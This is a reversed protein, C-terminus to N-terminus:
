WRVMWPGWRIRGDFQPAPELLLDHRIQRGGDWRKRESAFGLNRYLANSAVNRENTDLSMACCGAARAEQIAHEVLRRGVGRGRVAEVVFLDELLAAEGQAWLSYHRRQLAYGVAGTGTTALGVTVASDRLLRALDREIERDDPRLRALSNRFTAILCAMAVLDAPRARRISVDFEM